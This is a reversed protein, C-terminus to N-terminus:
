DEGGLLLLDMAFVSVHYYVFLSCDLLWKPWHPLFVLLPPIGRAESIITDPTCEHNWIIGKPMAQYSFVGPTVVGMQWYLFFFFVEFNGKEGSLYFSVCFIAHNMEHTM